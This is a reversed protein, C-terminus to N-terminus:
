VAKMRASKLFHWGYPIAAANFQQKRFISTAMHCIKRTHGTELGKM